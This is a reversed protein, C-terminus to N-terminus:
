GWGLEGAHGAWDEGHHHVTHADTAAVFAVRHGQGVGGHQVREALLESVVVRRACPTLTPRGLSSSMPLLSTPWLARPAPRTKSWPAFRTCRAM